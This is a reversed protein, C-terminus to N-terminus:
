KQLDIGPEKCPKRRILSPDEHKCLFCIILRVMRSGEKRMQRRDAPQRRLGETRHM